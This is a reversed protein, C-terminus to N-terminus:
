KVSVILNKRLRIHLFDLGNLRKVPDLEQRIGAAHVDQAQQHGGGGRERMQRPGELLGRCPNTM